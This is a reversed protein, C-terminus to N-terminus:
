RPRSNRSHILRECRRGTHRVRRAPSRGLNEWGALTVSFGGKGKEDFVNWYTGGPQNLLARLGVKEDGFEPTFRKGDANVWIANFNFAALGRTRSPDRPDPLGLVYNWQHDLRSIRGSVRRVLEHGSGMASHAAGALLRAPKPLEAPWNEMVRKLNSQFGGTAVIVHPANLDRRTGRRLDRVKVGTVM